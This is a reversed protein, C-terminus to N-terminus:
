DNEDLNFGYKKACNECVIKTGCEDNPVRYQFEWSTSIGCDACAVDM